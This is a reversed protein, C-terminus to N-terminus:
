WVALFFLCCVTLNYTYWCLLWWDISDHLLLTLLNLTNCTAIYGHSHGMVKRVECGRYSGSRVDQCWDLEWRFDGFRRRLWVTGICRIAISHFAMAVFSCFFFWWLSDLHAPTLNEESASHNELWLIDWTESQQITYPTDAHTQFNRWPIGSAFIYRCFWNLDVLPALRLQWYLFELEANRQRLWYPHM